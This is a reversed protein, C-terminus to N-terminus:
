SEVELVTAPAEPVGADTLRGRRLLTVLDERVADLGPVAKVKAVTTEVDYLTSRVSIIGSEWVAYCALGSRNDPQGLSGPNVVLCNGVKRIFQTHSHGVLLIDVPLHGVEETWRESDAPAYGFLPDSPLAHCLRFRTRGVELEIQLPLDQLDTTQAEHLARETIRTTAEALEAFRGHCRPDEHFAIAYDHNGKVAYAAHQRVFDVVESPNPGYNVLDGLIWLQDYNRPLVALAEQNAHLDSAIVIRM